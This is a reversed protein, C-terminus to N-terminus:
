RCASFALQWTGWTGLQYFIHPAHFSDFNSCTIGSGTELDGREYPTLDMNHRQYLIYYYYCHHILANEHEDTAIAICPYEYRSLSLSSQCIFPFKESTVSSVSKVPLFMSKWKDVQVSHIYFILLPYYNLTFVRFSILNLHHSHPCVLYLSNSSMLTPM